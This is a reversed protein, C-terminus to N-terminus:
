RWPALARDLHEELLAEGAVIRSSIRVVRWRPDDALRPPIRVADKETTAVADCGGAGAARLAEELEEERFAHHDRFTREGTVQAGLATLTRRFGDPRALACVLLVRRGALAGAGFSRVLQGDLVDEVAHRSEVPLKGTTELLRGRLVDLAGAPAQDTRGLGAQPARGRASWPERNPGRPLLRGNGAPNSADLVVV